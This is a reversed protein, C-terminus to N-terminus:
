KQQRFCFFSMAGLGASCVAFTADLLVDLRGFPVGAALDLLFVILLLASISLAIMCLAKPMRNELFFM